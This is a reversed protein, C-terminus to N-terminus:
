IESGAHERRRIWSLAVLWMWSLIQRCQYLVFGLSLALVPVMPINYRTRYHTVGALFAALLLTPTLGVALMTRRRYAAWIWLWVVGVWALPVYTYTIAALAYQDLVSPFLRQVLTNRDFWMGRLFIPFSTTVHALPSELIMDIAEGQMHSNAKLRAVGASHEEYIERIERQHQGGIRDHVSEPNQQGTEPDRRAFRKINNWSIKDELWANGEAVLDIHPISYLAFGLKETASLENYHARYLLPAGGRGSITVDEFQVTNRAIWAGPLLSAVLAFVLIRSFPRTAM